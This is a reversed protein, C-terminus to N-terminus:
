VIKAKGYELRLYPGRLPDGIITCCKHGQVESMNEGLTVCNNGMSEVWIKKIKRM